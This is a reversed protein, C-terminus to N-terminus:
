ATRRSSRRACRDDAAVATRSLRTPYRALADRRIEQRVHELAEPLRVRRHAPGLASEPRPRASTRCSTSICPPLMATALSPASLPDVKVTVSGAATSSANVGRTGLGGASGAPASSDRRMRITSAFVVPAIQQRRHEDYLPACTTPARVARSAKSTMDRPRRRRARGSARRDRAGPRSRSRGSGASGVARPDQPVRRRGHRHGRVDADVLSRRASSAPKSMNRAFGILGSSTPAATSDSTSRRRGRRSTRRTREQVAAPAGALLCSCGNRSSPNSLRLAPRHPVTLRRINRARWGTDM